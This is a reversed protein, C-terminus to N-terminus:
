LVEFAQNSGCSNCDGNLPAKVHFQLMNRTFEPVEILVKEYVTAFAEDDLMRLLNRRFLICAANGLQTVSAPTREYVDCISEILELPEFPISCRSSYKKEALDRLAPIDFRDGLAFTRAHLQLPSIHSPTELETAELINDDYSLSYFFNVMKKLEPYIM